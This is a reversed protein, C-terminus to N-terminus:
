GRWKVRGAGYDSYFFDSKSTEYPCFFTKYFYLPLFRSDTHSRFLTFRHRSLFIYLSKFSVRRAPDGAIKKQANREAKRKAFQNSAGAERKGEKRKAEERGGRRGEEGKGQIISTAHLGLLLLPQGGGGGVLRKRFEVLTFFRNSLKDGVCWSLVLSILLFHKNEKERTIAVM